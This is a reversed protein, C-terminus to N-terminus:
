LLSTIFRDLRTDEWYIVRVVLAALIGTLAGGVVDSAYHTGVFVRSVCVLIAALLLGSGRWGLGQLLFAAVIAFVATAHDSPFSWDASRGVILHTVGADYPRVRHM